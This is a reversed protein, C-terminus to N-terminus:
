TKSKYSGNTAYKTIFVYEKRRYEKHSNFDKSDLEDVTEVGQSTNMNLYVM